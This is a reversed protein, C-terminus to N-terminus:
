TGTNNIATTIKLIDVNVNPLEAPKHLRARVKKRKASPKVAKLANMLLVELSVKEKNLQLRGQEVRSLEKLEDLLQFVKNGQEVIMSVFETHSPNLKGGIGELLMEAYSMMTSVPQEFANVLKTLIRSKLHNLSSLLQDSNEIRLDKRTLEEFAETISEVHIHTTLKSKYALYAMTEFVTALHKVIEEALLSDMRGYENFYHNALDPSIESSLELVSQPISSYEKPNFPGFVIKGIRETDLCFPFTRYEFGIFCSQIEITGVDPIKQQSKPTVQLCDVGFPQVSFIYHCLRSQPRSDIIKEGRKDFIKIPINYLETFSLAIEEYLERDSNIIESLTPDQQLISDNM